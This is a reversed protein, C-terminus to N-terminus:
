LMCLGRSGTNKNNKESTKRQKKWFVFNFHKSLEEMVKKYVVNGAYEM